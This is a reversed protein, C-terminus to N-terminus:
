IFKIAKIYLAKPVKVLAVTLSLMILLPPVNDSGLDAVGATGGGIGIRHQM